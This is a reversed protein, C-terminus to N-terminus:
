RKLALSLTEILEKSPRHSFVGSQKGKRLGRLFLYFVGGFHQNYDYNKIRSGLFQHAAVTYILYQLHYNNNEMAKLVGESEYDSIRDGLYNSKWDLIYYRGDYEFFLDVFGNMMGSFQIGKKVFVPYDHLALISDIMAKQGKINFNFEMEALQNKPNLDKLYFTMGDPSPLPAELTNMVLQQIFPSNEIIVEGNEDKQNFRYLAFRSKASLNKFDSFDEDFQITEFIEHLKTGVLAGKELQNFIFDDYETPEETNFEIEQFEDMSDLPLFGGDGSISSYSLKFWNSYANLIRNHLPQTKISFQHKKVYKLGKDNITPANRILFDNEQASQLFDFLANNLEKESDLKCESFIYCMYKARTMAVYLLRRDEQRNQLIYNNYNVEHAMLNDPYDFYIRKKKLGNIELDGKYSVFGNKKLAPESDLGEVLVINYQLGKSKHISVIQVAEDETEVQMVYDKKEEKEQEIKRYLFFLLEEGSCKTYYQEEQLIQAIQEINALSRLLKNNQLLQFRLDYDELFSSVAKYVEGNKLAKNYKYFNLITQEQEAIQQAHAENKCAYYGFSALFVKRINNIEPQLIASLLMGVGKAEFSSFVSIDMVQVAPINKKQLMQKIEIGTKNQRVLVAIDSPRIPRLKDENEDKIQYARSSILVNVFQAIESSTIKKEEFNLVRFSQFDPDDTVVEGHNKESAKVVEYQIAKQHLFPDEIRQFFDNFANVMAVNSRYNVDMSFRNSHPIENKAEIYSEVDAGRFGYISQKPDGILFLSCDQNDSLFLTKFIEFQINDTDQFEDIFVALNKQRIIEILVENQEEVIKEYVKNILDDYSAIGKKRIEQGIRPVYQHIALSTLANKLFVPNAADCYDNFCKVFDQPLSDLFKETKGDLTLDIFTLIFQEEDDFLVSLYKYFLSNKRASNVVEAIGEKQIRFITKLKEFLSMKEKEREEIVTKFAEISHINPNLNAFIKGSMAHQFCESLLSITLHNQALIEVDLGIYIERWFDYCIADIMENVNGQLQLSFRQGTELSHETLIQQCFSHITNIRAHDLSDLALQLRQRIVKHNKEQEIVRWVIQAIADNPDLETKDKSMCYYAKQMFDRIRIRLEAVAANTFTVVLVNEVSLKQELIMRLYLLAISYTKGTGASAEIIYKGELNQELVNLKEM